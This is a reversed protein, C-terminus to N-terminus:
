IFDWSILTGQFKVELARQESTACNVYGYNAMILLNDYYKKKYYEYIKPLGKGRHREIFRSRYEGMLASNILFSDDTRRGGLLRSTLNSAKERMSKRITSPIGNGCDLFCFSIKKKEPMYSAMIYWKSMQRNNGYAHAFTNAMCEIITNYSASTNRSKSRNLKNRTFRIVEEAVEAVVLRDSKISVIDVSSRPMTLGPKLSVYDFFGSEIFFAKCRADDPFNGRIKFNSYGAKLNDMLSLLYLLADGTLRKVDKLNISVHKGKRVLERISNYFGLMFEPNDIISFDSPAQVNLYSDHKIKVIEPKYARTTSIDNPENTHQKKRKESIRKLSKEIKKRQFHKYEVSSYYKKM